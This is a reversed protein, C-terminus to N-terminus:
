VLKAKFRITSYEWTVYGLGTYVVQAIYAGAAIPTAANTDWDYYWYKHTSDWTMTEDQKVISSDSKRWITVKVSVSMTGTIPNADFDEATSKIRTTEGVYLAM